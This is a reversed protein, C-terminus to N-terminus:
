GFIRMWKFRRAHRKMKEAKRIVAKIRLECLNNRYSASKEKEYAKWFRSRYKESVEYLKFDCERCVFKLWSTKYDEYISFVIPNNENNCIDCVNSSM